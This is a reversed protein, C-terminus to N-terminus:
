MGLRFAFPFLNDCEKAGKCKKAVSESERERLLKKTRFRSCASSSKRTRTQKGEGGPVIDFSSWLAPPLICDSCLESSASPMDRSPSTADGTSGGAASIAVAPATAGAAAPPAADCCLAFRARLAGMSMSSWM